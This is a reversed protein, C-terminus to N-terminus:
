RSKAIIRAIAAQGLSLGGDNPPVLRPAMVRFGRGRLRARAAALLRMNQFCGGSLAVREHGARAAIREILDALGAHFRAAILAAPAGRRVDAFLELIAPGWDAIAPARGALPIPYPAAEGIQEAALEVAMAAQGEFSAHTRLGALAAVADFLRGASTTRPAGRPRDLLALLPALEADRFWARAIEAAGAGLIEYLVGLAARRPERAAREGGPLSFPRLCAFRSSAAGDVVLAEGGWLAGDCGLGAGDWAIGLVPGAEGHEALVSAIHAHHHQVRVLPAGSEASLREALRTSAYDPHLDCAIIEPRVRFFALLDEATRELLRVADITHLDGLHQSV